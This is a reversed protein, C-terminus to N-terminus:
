ARAAHSVGASVTDELDEEDENYEEEKNERRRRASVTDVFTDDCIFELGGSFWM